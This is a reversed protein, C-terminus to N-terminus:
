IWRRGTQVNSWYRVKQSQDLLSDFIIGGDTGHVCHYADYGNADDIDGLCFGVTGNDFEIHIKWVPEVEFPRTQASASSAYVRRPSAQPEMLWVIVSIAHIIGMGIADGMSERKLKWAKNGAINIPHRYNVQLQKIQGFVNDSVMDRLGQEMPDFYLLYDVMTVLGPNDRELEIQRRFEDFTTACPKECFVHKGNSLANVSQKGHMGNPTCIFIADVEPDDILDQYSDTWTARQIGSSSIASAGRAADRGCVWKVNVDDREALRALIASGMWGTGALAINLLESM